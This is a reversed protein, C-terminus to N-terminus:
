KDLNNMQYLSSLEELHKTFEIFDSNNLAETIEPCSSSPDNAHSIKVDLVQGTEPNLQIEVLVMETFIFLETNTAGVKLKLNLQRTITELREKMSTSSTIRISKQIVDLCKQVQNREATDNMVFPRKEFLASRVLKIVDVWDSTSKAM